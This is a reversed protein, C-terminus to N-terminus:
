QTRNSTQDQKQIIQEIKEVIEASIKRRDFNEQVYKRGNAGWLKLKDSNGMTLIADAIKRPDDEPVIVGADANRVIAAGESESCHLIPIEMSMLEFLKASRVVRLGPLNKHIVIGINFISLLDPLQSQDIPDHFRVNEIKNDRAYKILMEKEYGDGCFLFLIEKDGQLLKAADLILLLNHNRGHLGSYGIVFQNEIGYLKRIEPSAIRPSFREPDAGNPWLIPDISPMASKINKRLGETQCTIAASKEMIKKEFKEFKELVFQSKIIKQERIAQTWMDAINTIIKAKWLKALKLATYGLFLPPYEWLILDASKIERRGVDYATLAFSLYSLLSAAASRSKHVYLWSRIVDIDGVKEKTKYVHKYDEFIKGTPYNPLATLVTLKHGRDKFAHALANIRNQAAGMEPPFYQTLIVVDM